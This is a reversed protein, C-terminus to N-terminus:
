RRIPGTRRCSMTGGFGMGLARLAEAVQHAQAATSRAYSIVIDTM